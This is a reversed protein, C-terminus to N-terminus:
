FKFYDLVPVKIKLIYLAVKHTSTMAVITERTVTNEVTFLRRPYEELKIKHVPLYHNLDKIGTMDGMGGRLSPPPGARPHVNTPTSTDVMSLQFSSAPSPLDGLTYLGGAGPIPPPPHGLRSVTNGHGPMGPHMMGYDPHQQSPQQHYYPPPSLAERMM